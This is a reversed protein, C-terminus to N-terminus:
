WMSPLCLVYYNFRYKIKYHAREKFIGCGKEPPLLPLSRGSSTNGPSLQQLWTSPVRLLLSALALSMSFRSPLAPIEAPSGQLQECFSATEWSPFTPLRSHHLDLSSLYIAELEQPLRVQKDGTFVQPPLNLMTSFYDHLHQPPHRLHFLRTGTLLRNMAGRSLLWPAQCIQSTQLTERFHLYYYNPLWLTAPHLLHRWKLASWPMYSTSCSHWSATNNFMM